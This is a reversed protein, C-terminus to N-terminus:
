AYVCCFQGALTNLGNAIKTDPVGAYGLTRTDNLTTNRSLPNNMFTVTGATANQREKLDLAQWIWWTRDIMAHHAFFAHDSPSNYLDGNADCGIGYHGGGHVGFEGPVFYQMTDQFSTINTYNLTLSAVNAETTNM